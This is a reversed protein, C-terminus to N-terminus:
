GTEQEAGPAHQWCADPCRRDGVYTLLPPGDSRVGLQWHIARPATGSARVVGTHIGHLHHAACVASRNTRANGGGRSRYRLHHDHLNRRSSCGPVICRWGDRAFIPDRHRPTAEWYTIVHQLVRALALWRPAGPGAYADLAERFLAVVSVPATFQIEVDCVELAARRGTDFKTLLTQSPAHAGIQVSAASPAAAAASTVASAVSAASTAAAATSTVATSTAIAQAVPSVLVSDLPPPDLPADAGCLDRAELVYNVEDALRRVTVADARAIWAAANTRDVVPLLTLACVWSIAGEDYAQAFDDDRRTSREVKLLAWAKRISIGLRERVYDAFSAFGHTRYLHKDVVIRLLRGIRPESTRIARMAAVLRADLAFPDSAARSPATDSREPERTAGAQGTAVSRSEPAVTPEPSHESSVSTTLSSAAPDTVTRRAATTSDSRRALRMCALVARDVLSVGAPRGSFAEAAIIEAARWAALPEGAVRSALELAYRWLARVRAPCAIRLRLAAESDITGDDHDPDAAGAGAGNPRVAHAIRELEEVTTARARALWQEQDDPRAVACVARVQAWSLEARDFAATVLPLADLRTAVWAAAHLTRASVGLRERAYDSLRVFGLRRYAHGRCLARAVIGLEHRAAAESRCAVQLEIDLQRAFQARETLLARELEGDANGRERPRRSRAAGGRGVVTRGVAARGVAARIRPRRRWGGARHLFSSM